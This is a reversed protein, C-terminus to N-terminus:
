SSVLSIAKPLRIARGVKWLAELERGETLPTSSRVAAAVRRWRMWACLLVAIFGCFWLALLVAPLPNLAPASAAVPTVADRIPAFPQVIQEMVFPLRSVPTAPAFWRGLSAGIAALVSFPVLFKVSAALWLWYRARAHNARLALALLVAVAAFGTSQWLHNAAVRGFSTAFEPLPLADDKTRWSASPRARKRWM